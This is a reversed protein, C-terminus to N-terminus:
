KDDIRNQLFTMIDETIMSLSCMYQYFFFISYTGRFIRKSLISYLELVIRNTIRSLDRDQVTDKGQKKHSLCHM